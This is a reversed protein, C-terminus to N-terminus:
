LKRFIFVGKKDTYSLINDDVVELKLEAKIKDPLKLFNDMVIDIEYDKAGLRTVWEKFDHKKYLNIFYEIRFFQHTFNIIEKVTYSRVHSNDRLYEIVNLYADDVDVISDILVFYGGSKLVRFVDYFFSKPNVFHHLAIRCGVVDFSEDKFPIESVSGVVVSTLSYENLATKAMNYSYDVAFKREADFVKTFHGAGTALDLMNKFSMSGFYSKVIELDDGKMHDSSILYRHASRDFGVSNLPKM